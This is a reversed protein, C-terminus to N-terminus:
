GGKQRIEGIVERLWAENTSQMIGEGDPGALWRWAWLILAAPCVTTWTNLQLPGKPERAQLLAQLESVLQGVKAEPM